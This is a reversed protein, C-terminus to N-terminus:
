SICFFVPVTLQAGEGGRLTHYLGDPGLRAVNAFFGTVLCRRLTATDDSSPLACARGRQAQSGGNRHTTTELHRRMYSGLQDRM